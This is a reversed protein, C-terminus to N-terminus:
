YILVMAVSQQTSQVVSDSSTPKISNLKIEPFQGLFDNLYKSKIAYNVNQPLGGSSSLAAM